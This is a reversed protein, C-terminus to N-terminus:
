LLKKRGNGEIGEGHNNEQRYIKEQPIQPIQITKVPETTIGSEIEIMGSGSVINVNGHITGSIIVDGKQPEHIMPMCEVVHGRTQIQDMHIPKGGGYSQNQKKRVPQQITKIPSVASSERQSIIVTSDMTTTTIRLLWEQAFLRTTPTMKVSFTKGAIIQQNVTVALKEDSDAYYAWLTDGECNVVPVLENDIFPGAIKGKFTIQTINTNNVSDTLISTGKPNQCSTFVIAIALIAFIASFVKKM